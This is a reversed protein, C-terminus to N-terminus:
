VFYIKPIILYCCINEQWFGTPDFLVPLSAVSGHPLVYSQCTFLHSIWAQIKHHLLLSSVAKKGKRALSLLHTNWLWSHLCCCGLLLHMGGELMNWFPAPDRPFGCSSAQELTTDDTAAPFSLATHPVLVQKDCNQLYCSCSAAVVWPGRSAWNAPIHPM